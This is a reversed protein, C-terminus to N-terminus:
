AKGLARGRNCTVLRYVQARDDEYRYYKDCTSRTM